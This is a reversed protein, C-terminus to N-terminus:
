KAQIGIEGAADYSGATASTAFSVLFYYLNTFFSLSCFVYWLGFSSQCRKAWQMYGIEGAADYCRANTNVNMTFSVIFIVFTLLFIFSSFCVMPWVVVLTMQGVYRDRGQQMTAGPMRM